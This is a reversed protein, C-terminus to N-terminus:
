FFDDNTNEAFHNISNNLLYNQRDLTLIMFNNEVWEKEVFGCKNFVSLAPKNERYIKTYLSKLKLYSFAYDSVLSLAKGAIGKGWYEKEGILVNCRAAQDSINTIEINGIHHDPLNLCIAFCKDTTKLLLYSIWGAEVDMSVYQEPREGTCKWLEPDTSWKLNNEADSVLLPRIYISYDM